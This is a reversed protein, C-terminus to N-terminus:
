NINFRKVLYLLLNDIVADVNSVPTLYGNWITSFVLIPEGSSSCVYGSLARVNSLSGTKAKIKGMASTNVLRNKLTGDIGAIPFLDLWVDKFPSQLSSELITLFHKPSFYNIRSLGSGDVFKYSNRNLGNAELQDECYKKGVDFSGYNERQFAIAKIMTEAYLNHSVKMMEKLIQSLPFSKYSLLLLTDKRVLKIKATDEIAIIGGSVTIGSKHFVDKLVQVYFLNPNSLSISIELSTSDNAYIEGGFIIEDDCITKKKAYIRQSLKKESNTDNFFQFNKEIKVWTTKLNPEITILKNKSFPIIKFDIYNENLQLPTIQAAYWNQLDDYNWGFGITKNDFASADAIISGKIERIGKKKLEDAFKYFVATSSDFFRTYFTPDGNSWVFLDGNLVNNQIEGNTYLKTEFRFHPGLENLASFASVIKVNSAPNFNKESNKEYIIKNEKLSKVIIGFNSNSLLSDSYLIREIESQIKQDEIKEKERSASCSIFILASLFILICNLNKIM